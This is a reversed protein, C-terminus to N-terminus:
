IEGRLKMDKVTSLLNPVIPILIRGTWETAPNNQESVIEVYEKLNKKKWHELWKEIKDQPFFATDEYPITFSFGKMTGDSKIFISCFAGIDKFRTKDKKAVYEPFIQRALNYVGVLFEIKQKLKLRLLAYDRNLSDSRIAFNEFQDQKYVTAGKINWQASADWAILLATLILLSKNMKM